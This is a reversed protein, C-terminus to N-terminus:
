DTNIQSIQPRNYVADRYSNLGADFGLPHVPHVSDMDWIHESRPAERLTAEVFNEAGLAVLKGVGQLITASRQLLIVTVPVVKSRRELLLV